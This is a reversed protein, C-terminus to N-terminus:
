RYEAELKAKIQDIRIGENAPYFGDVGNLKRVQEDGYHHLAILDWDRTFVPSGSSGKQTPSRYHVRTDDWDLLLNDHISLMPLDLGRPHGIVYARPPRSSSRLPLATAIRCTTAGPPVHDLVAVIADLEDKRSWLLIEQIQSRRPEEGSPELGQFAVYAKDKTLAEPVVHYNTLFVTEPLRSDLEPGHLLFGTGVGQGFRDEVRAVARCRELAAQFWNISEFREDGLLAEYGADDELERLNEEDLHPSAIDVQGGEERLLAAKLLTVLPGGRQHSEDLEWVETLQRLTSGLEFADVGPAQVYRDLWRLAERYHGLAIAAELATALDWHELKDGRDNLRQSIETAITRATATPDPFGELEVGDSGARDLLAVSNIGHWILNPHDRYVDHYARVARDLYTGRRLARPDTWVYMQKYVRGLLGKAEVQEDFADDTDAVLQELVSHAAMVQNQDLLAQAYQRRVVPHDASAEVFADAVRTMLRFYRKRRLTSLINRAEPEPYGDDTSRLYVVLEECLEVVLPRDFADVAEKLRSASAGPAWTMTM